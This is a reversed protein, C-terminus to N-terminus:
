WESSEQGECQLDARTEGRNFFGLRLLSLKLFQRDTKLRLKRELTCVMQIWVLITWVFGIMMRCIPLKVWSFSGKKFDMLVNQWWTISAFDCCQCQKVKGSDKIGYVVSDDQPAKVLPKSDSPFCQSPKITDSQNLRHCIILSPSELFLKDRKQLGEPTLKLDEAKWERYCEM